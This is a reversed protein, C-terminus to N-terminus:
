RWSRPSATLGKREEDVDEDDDDDKWFDGDEKGVITTPLIGHHNKSSPRRWSRRMCYYLSCMALVGAGVVLWHWSGFGGQVYRRAAEVSLDQADPAPAEENGRAVIKKEDTEKGIVFDKVWTTFQRAAAIDKLYCQHPADQIILNQWKSFFKKHFDSSRLANDYQGYITLLPVDKSGDTRRKLYDYNAAVSIYGSVKEAHVWVYLLAM